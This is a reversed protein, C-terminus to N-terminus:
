GAEPESTGSSVPPVPTLPETSLASEPEPETPTETTPTEPVTPRVENGLGGGGGDTATAWQSMDGEHYHYHVEVPQPADGGASISVGGDAPHFAPASPLEVTLTEPFTTERSYHNTANASGTSPQFLDLERAGACGSSFCMLGAVAVIFSMLLLSWMRRRNGVSMTM